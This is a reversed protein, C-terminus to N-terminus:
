GALGRFGVVVVAIGFVISTSIKMLNVTLYRTPAGDADRSQPSKLVQRLYPPWVIISWLGAIILIVALPTPMSM